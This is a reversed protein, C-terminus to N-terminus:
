GFAIRQSNPGGILDARAAEADRARCFPGALNYSRQPGVDHLEGLGMGKAIEGGV